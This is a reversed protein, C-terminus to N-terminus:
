ASYSSGEIAVAISALRALVFAMEVVSQKEHCRLFQAEHPEDLKHLCLCSFSMGRTNLSSYSNRESNIRFFGGVPNFGVMYIVPEIPYESYTDITPIGEQILFAQVGSGGKSSLLKNRARRNIQFIEEGSSVNIVGMGYTGADNKIFAYPSQNIKAADYYKQTQLLVTDVKKRLAELNNSDNLDTNTHVTFATTIKRPDISLIASFEEAIGNLIEFHKSKKRKWWGLEPSPIIPVPSQELAPPIGSSFDNNSIILEPVFDGVYIKEANRQLKYLYLTQGLIPLEISDESLATGPYTVRVEFGAQSIISSLRVVNELYFRNRTHEEILLAIRKKHPFYQTLYDKFYAVTTKTFSNCLNNFGAPFINTDVVAIKDNSNRIDCGLFIPPKLTSEYKQFFRDVQTQHIKIKDLIEQIM